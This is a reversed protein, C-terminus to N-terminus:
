SPFSVRSVIEHWQLWITSIHLNRTLRSLDPYLRTGHKLFRDPIVKRSLRDASVNHASPIYRASIKLFYKYKICEIASVMAGVFPNPARRRSLWAVVNTNDSYLTIIHAPSQPALLDIAVYAAFLELWAIDVRPFSSWGDCRCVHPGLLRLPTTFYYYAAWGGIGGTSAADVYISRTERPLTSLIYTFRLGRNRQM